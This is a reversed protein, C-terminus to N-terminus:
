MLKKLLAEKKFYRFTMLHFGLDKALIHDPTNPNKKIADCIQYVEKRIANPNGCREFHWRKMIRYKGQKGCHPCTVIEEIKENAKKMNALESEKKKESAYHAEKMALIWEPNKRQAKLRESHNERLKKGKIPDALNNIYSQRCNTITKPGSIKGAASATVSLNGRKRNVDWAKKGGKISGSSFSLNRKDKYEIKYHDFWKKKIAPIEKAEYHKELVKFSSLDFNSADWWTNYKNTFRTAMVFNKGNNDKIYYVYILQDDLDFGPVNRLAFAASLISITKLFERREM